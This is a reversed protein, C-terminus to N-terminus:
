EESKLRASRRMMYGVCAAISALSLVITTLHM